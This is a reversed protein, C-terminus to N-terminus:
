ITTDIFGLRVRTYYFGSVTDPSALKGAGDNVLWMVVELRLKRVQLMSIM